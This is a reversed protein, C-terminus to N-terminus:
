LSGLVTNMTTGRTIGLLYYKRVKVVKPVLLSQKLGM